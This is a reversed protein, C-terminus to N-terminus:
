VEKGPGEGKPADLGIIVLGEGVGQHIGGTVGRIWWVMLENLAQGVKGENMSYVSNSIEMGRRMVGDMTSIGSSFARESIRHQREYRYAAAMFLKIYPLLIHVILFMQVIVAALIRHLISPSQYPAKMSESLNKDQRSIDTSPLTATRLAVVDDPIASSVSMKEEPSLNVPLGRLLYTM